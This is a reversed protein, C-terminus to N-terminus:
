AGEAGRRTIFVGRVRAGDGEMVSRGDDVNIVLKRGRLVNGDRTVTVDGTLTILRTQADYVGYDGIAALSPTAYRVDGEAILRAVDGVDGESGGDEDDDSAFYVEFRDAALRVDGQTAVPEGTVYAIREDPLYEFREGTVVLPGEGLPSTQASAAPAAMACCCAAAIAAALRPPKHIKAGEAM